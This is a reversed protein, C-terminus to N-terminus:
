IASLAKHLRAVQAKGGWEEWYASVESDTAEFEFFEENFEVALPRLKEILQPTLSTATVLYGNPLQSGHAEDRQLLAWRTGANSRRALSYKVCRGRSLSHFHNRHAFIPLDRDVEEVKFGMKLASERIEQAAGGFLSKLWAM